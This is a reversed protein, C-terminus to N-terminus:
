FSRQGLGKVIKTKESDKRRIGKVRGGRRKREREGGGGGKRGEKRIGFCQGKKREREKVGRAEQCSVFM